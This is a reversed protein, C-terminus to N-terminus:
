TRCTQAKGEIGRQCRSAYLGGTEVKSRVALHGPPYSTFYAAISVWEYANFEIPNFRQILKEYERVPIQDYHMIWEHRGIISYLGWHIFMGFRIDQFWALGEPSVQLAMSM